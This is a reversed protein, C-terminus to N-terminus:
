AGETQTSHRQILKMQAMAFIINLPFMGFVKFNVWFDTSQTRWVAENLLGLVIFWCAWRITLIRWGEDDLQFVSGFLTGLFNRKLALGAFLAISIMGNVVTPKMKIFIENDFYLTLGGFVVLLGGAVLPMMPVHKHRTYSIGLAVATAVILIATAVMLGYVSNAIFFIILPGMDILLKEGQPIQAAKPPKTQDSM